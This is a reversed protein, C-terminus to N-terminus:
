DIFNDFKQYFVAAYLQTQGNDFKSGLEFSDSTEAELDMNPVIVFPTIPVFDHNQYGYIKDYGPARFGHDYSLYTNLSETLQYGVSLSPSFES